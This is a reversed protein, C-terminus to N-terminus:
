KGLARRVLPLIGTVIRDVGRANPHMGDDLQLARQGIVGDLFFPYLPVRYVHALDPYIADFQRRYVVGLNGSARMGALLVPINHRKMDALIADLNSRTQAPPLGRLMDNAGLELIVLDPKRGLASLVWNLRARGAASTDGSVGANHVRAAIGAKRLAAELRPAFGETPGLRYGASLSDGYAVVLPQATAAPRPQALAPAAGVLLM